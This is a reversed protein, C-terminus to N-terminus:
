LRGVSGFKVIQSCFWDQCDAFLVLRPLRRVSGTKVIQSCFLDQCDAFLVLRSLRCVTGTKVIQSCFWDQCDPNPNMYLLNNKKILQISSYTCTFYRYGVFFLTEFRRQNSVSDTDLDLM